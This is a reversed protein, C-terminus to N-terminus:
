LHLSIHVVYFNFQDARHTWVNFERLLASVVVLPTMTSLAKPGLFYARLFDAVRTHLLYSELAPTVGKSRADWSWGGDDAFLKALGADLYIWAIQLRFLFCGLLGHVTGQRKGPKIGAVCSTSTSSSSPFPLCAAALLLIHMYRDLIYALQINRLTASVYLVLSLIACTRRKWAAFDMALGAAFLLQLASLIQQWILSGSWGHICMIAQLFSGITHMGAGTVERLRATPLTGEDSYMAWLTPWREVVTVCLLFALGLHFARLAVEDMSFLAHAM